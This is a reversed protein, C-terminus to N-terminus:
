WHRRIWQFVGHGPDMIADLLTQAEVRTKREYRAQEDWDKVTGWLNLLHPDADLESRLGALVVLEEVKHTYCKQALQKDPYDHRKTQKAICAKLACEV